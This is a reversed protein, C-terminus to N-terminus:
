KKLNFTSEEYYFFINCLKKIKFHFFFIIIINLKFFKYYQNLKLLKFTLLMINKNKMLVLKAHHDYNIVRSNCHIKM